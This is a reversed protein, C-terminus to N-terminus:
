SCAAHQQQLKGMGPNGSCDPLVRVRKRIRDPTEMAGEANNGRYYESREILRTENRFL